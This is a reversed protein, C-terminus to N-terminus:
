QGGVDSPGRSSTPGGHATCAIARGPLDDEVQLGDAVKVGRQPALCGCRQPTVISGAQTLTISLILRGLMHSTSLGARPVREAAAM